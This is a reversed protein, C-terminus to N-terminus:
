AENLDEEIQQLQFTKAYYQNSTMLQAHTGSEVIRGQDLSIIQDAYSVASLRHSVIIITKQGARARITNIIQTGTELDVQSIPDDLVLLDAEYLLCRAIAIRQKQGGSLIIGKEGVVTDFGKPFNKITDFLSAQRAANELQDNTIAPNGFDMNERITGAFLFPEQPVVGVHRRLEEVPIQRINTGGITTLNGGNPRSQNSPENRQNLVGPLVKTRTAPPRTNTLDVLNPTAFTKTWDGLSLAM